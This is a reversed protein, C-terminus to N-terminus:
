GLLHGRSDGEDAVALYLLDGAPQPLEGALYRSFVAAMTVTINLMDVAGRGWIFGDHLEGGFPDHSWGKPQAPVVDLHGMLMLRPASPNRGPVRYLVSQRGPHPEFVRGAEGFFEALTEVSRYEHGSDPTGDNVCQNRILTGLLGALEETQM